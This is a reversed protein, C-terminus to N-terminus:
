PLEAKRQDSNEFETTYAWERLMTEIFRDGPEWDIDKYDICIEGAM